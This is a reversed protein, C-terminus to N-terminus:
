RDLSMMPEWYMNILDLWASNIVTAHLTYAAGHHLVETEGGSCTRDLCPMTKIKM